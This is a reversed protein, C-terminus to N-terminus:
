YELVHEEMKLGFDAFMFEAKWKWFDFMALNVVRLLLDEGARNGRFATRAKSGSESVSVSSSPSRTSAPTPENINQATSNRSIDIKLARM